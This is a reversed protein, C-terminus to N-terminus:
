TCGAQHPTITVSYTVTEDASMNQVVIRSRTGRPPLTDGFGYVGAPRPSIRSDYLSECTDDPAPLCSPDLERLRLPVTPSDLLFQLNIQTTGKPVDVDYYRLEGPALTASYRVAPGTPGSTTPCCGACAFAAGAALALVFLKSITRM